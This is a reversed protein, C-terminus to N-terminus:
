FSPKETEAREKIKSDKQTNMRRAEKNDLGAVLTELTTGRYHIDYEPLFDM